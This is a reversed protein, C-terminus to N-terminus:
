IECVNIKSFSSDSKVKLQISKLTEYTKEADNDVCAFISKPKFYQIFGELEEFSAHSSYCINLTQSRYEDWSSICSANKGAWKQVSPVITLINKPDINSRCKLGKSNLSDLKTVCAHISTTNGQNTIRNRLIDIRKYIDFVIDRVHIKMNLYKSLEIFIFESGYIASTELIVINKVNKKIWKKAEACLIQLSDLRAPFSKPDFNIFTTDLYVKDITIPINRTTFHLSKLKCFDQVNIRFDGTYLITKDKINILFMISGPCHGSSICTVTISIDIGNHKYSIITADDLALEKLNHSTLSNSQLVLFKNELISKSIHSCYLFKNQKTLSKFFNENLGKMHDSHCHSLFYVSSHVNEETFCDISVGPIEELLGCFTSM